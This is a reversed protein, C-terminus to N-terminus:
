QLKEPTALLAENVAPSYTPTNRTVLYAQEIGHKANTLSESALKDSVALSEKSLDAIHPVLLGVHTVVTLVASVAAVALQVFETLKSTTAPDTVSFGSLISQLNATIDKLVAQIQSVIGATANKAADTLLTSLNSLQTNVDATVKQIDATQEATLTKGQLSSAFALIASVAASILPVLGQAATVWAATCGAGYAVLQLLAFVLFFRQWNVRLKM